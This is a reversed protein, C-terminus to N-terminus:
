GLARHGTIQLRFAEIGTIKRNSDSLLEIDSVGLEKLIQAGIGLERLYAVINESNKPKPTTNQPNNNLVSIQSRLQRKRPHRIYVFVGRQQDKIINLAKYIKERSGNAGLLDVLGKQAQVRVPVPKNEDTKIDGYVLALHEADDTTSRFSIADFVGLGKVPLKTHAIKEIIAETAMRYRIVDSIKLSKLNNETVLVNFERASLPEGQENICEALSAVPPLQSIQMLDVAAEAPTTRVLVGGNRARLPFVHGPTVLDLKPDETNALTRFTVVRDEASIGTSVGHRAEVSMALDLGEPKQEASMMPLGLKALHEESTAAFLVGRAHNVLFCVEEINCDSAAHLFFHRPRPEIDDVLGIVQARKIQECVEKILKEPM